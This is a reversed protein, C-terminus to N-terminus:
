GNVLGTMLVLDGQQAMNPGLDWRELFEATLKTPWLGSASSRFERQIGLRVQHGADEASM